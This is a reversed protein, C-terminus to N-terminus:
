AGSFDAMPTLRPTPSPAISATPEPMVAPPTMVTPTPPPLSCSDANDALLFAPSWNSIPIGAGGRELVRVTLLVDDLHGWVHGWFWRDSISIVTGDEHIHEPGIDFLERHLSTVKRFELTLNTREGLASVALNLTSQYARQSRRAVCHPPEPSVSEITVPYQILAAKQGHAEDPGHTNNFPNWYALVRGRNADGVYLNDNDDFTATFHLGGLDYLYSTPMLEPGLLNAYIGMFRSGVYPNFGVAMRNKSDFAPEWAAAYFTHWYEGIVERYERNSDAWLNSPTPASRFFAKKAEPAFVAGSTVSPRPLPSFVLLRLNGEVELSHDSVYLNGTRDISLAGPFCLVDKHADSEVASRDSPPFRGQNCLTGVPGRQGLIVDVVPNTLPDRIRLVRHNDTDSLWLSEGGGEPAIGFIRRGLTIRDETGLVPFEMKTTWFTHIPVSHEALPLDYVDLLGVGEFGLVWLRGGGDAKVSGCCGTWGTNYEDGVVGDAPQGNGLAGLGNWFMLRGIDSVILQDEWVAIGKPSHIGVRDKFNPNAPPYFFRKDAPGIHAGTGNTTLTPFRFVDATNLFVPVLINGNVDLGVSGSLPCIHPAGPLQFQPSGCDGDPRYSDKGLVHIVSNGTSDWLEVMNNGADVVWVGRGLPDVELSTPRHFGGGFELAAKMGSTFPPKFVMVRDNITDAVYVWGDNGVRIASPGHLQDPASGPRATHFDRQGLVLDASTAIEGNEPNKPFRLVRNNGGDAVWMNGFPDLEVGNGYWNTYSDNSSSHFCLSEATPNDFAGRNCTMGSFDEQGWVRDAISDEEFPREYKLIRHNMSDPVYLNGQGDVAMTVFTHEEGPSRAIDPIGCLTEASAVARVPFNQVGSDRNCASLDYGSPQGIILDAECPGDSRYCKALDIALIRSNGSDWVFARGPDTARDVVVGGPNFVKFPVVRSEGAQSFDMEGIIVDAWFDGALGRIPSTPPFPRAFGCISEEDALIFEESWESVEASSQGSTIRVRLTARGETGFAPVVRAMDISIRRHDLWNVEENFHGSEWGTSVDLFQIGRKDYGLLNEGTITLLRDADQASNRLVCYPPKPDVIKIIPTLANSDALRMSSVDGYSSEVLLFVLTGLAVIASLLSFKAMMLFLQFFYHPAEGLECSGPGEAGEAERM